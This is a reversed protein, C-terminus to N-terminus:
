SFEVHEKLIEDIQTITKHVVYAHDSEKMLANKNSKYDRLTSFHAILEQRINLIKQLDNKDM